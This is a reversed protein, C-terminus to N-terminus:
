WSENTKREKEPDFMMSDELCDGVLSKQPVSCEPM